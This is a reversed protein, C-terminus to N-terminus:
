HLNGAADPSCLLAQFNSAALNGGAYYFSENRVILSVSRFDQHAGVEVNLHNLTGIETMLSDQTPLHAASISGFVFNNTFALLLM